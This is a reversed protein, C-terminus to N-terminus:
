AAEARQMNRLQAAMDNLAYRIEDYEHQTIWGGKLDRDRKQDRIRAKARGISDRKETSTSM